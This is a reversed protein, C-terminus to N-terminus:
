SHRNKLFFVRLFFHGSVAAVNGMGTDERKIERERHNSAALRYRDRM